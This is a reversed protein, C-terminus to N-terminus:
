RMQFTSQTGLGARVLAFTDSLCSDPLGTSFGMATRSVRLFGRIITCHNQSVGVGGVGKPVACVAIGLVKPAGIGRAQLGLELFLTATERAPVGTVAEM